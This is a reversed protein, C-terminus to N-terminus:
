GTYINETFTTARIGRPDIATFECWTEYLARVANVLGGSSNFVPLFINRSGVVPAIFEIEGEFESKGDTGPLKPPVYKVFNSGNMKVVFVNGDPCNKAPQVRYTKGNFVYGVIESESGPKNFGEKATLPQGNREYRMLLNTPDEINDLLGLLVGQTTLITDLSLDYADDLGGLLKNLISGTLAGAYSNDVISRFEPFVALDIAESGGVGFLSGSAKIFDLLGSPGRDTVTGGSITQSNYPYIGYEVNDALNLDSGAGLTQKVIFTRALYDVSDVWVPQGAAQPSTGVVGPQQVLQLQMGKMLSRIRGSTLTLTIGAANITNPGAGSNFTGIRGDADLKWFSHVQSYAERMASKKILKQVYNELAADLQDARMIDFPIVFGGMGKKLQIARHLIGPASMEDLGPWSQFANAGYVTFGHTAPSDGGSQAVQGGGVTAWGRGGSLGGSYTHKVKWDRGINDREVGFSTRVVKEFTRDIDPLVDMITPVLDEKITRAITEIINAM